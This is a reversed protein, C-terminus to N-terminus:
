LCAHGGKWHGLRSTDVISSVLLENIIEFGCHVIQLSLNVLFDGERDIPAKGTGRFESVQIQYTKEIIKEKPINRSKEDLLVLLVFHHLVNPILVDWSHEGCLRGNKANSQGKQNKAVRKGIEALIIFNLLLGRTLSHILNHNAVARTIVNIVFFTTVLVVLEGEIRIANKSQVEHSRRCQNDQNGLSM